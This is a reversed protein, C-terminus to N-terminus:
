PQILPQQALIFRIRDGNGVTDKIAILQKGALKQYSLRDDGDAKTLREVSILDGPIRAGFWHPDEQQHWTVLTLSFPSSASIGHKQLAAEAGKDGYLVTNTNDKTNYFSSLLRQHLDSISFTGPLSAKKNILEAPPTTQECSTFLSVSIIALLYYPTRM